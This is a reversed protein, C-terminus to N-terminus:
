GDQDEMIAKEPLKTGLMTEPVDPIELRNELRVLYKNGAQRSTVGIIMAPIWNGEEVELLVMQNYEYATEITM